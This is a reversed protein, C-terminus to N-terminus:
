NELVYRIVQLIALHVPYILYFCRPAKRHSGSQEFMQILLVALASIRYFGPNLCAAFVAWVPYKIRQQKEWLVHMSLALFLGRLKYESCCCLFIGLVPFFGQKFGRLKFGSLVLLIGCLEFCVNLRRLGFLATYPIQSILGLLFVRLTYRNLSSTSRFGKVIGYVFLPFAFRGFSRLIYYVASGQLFAAAFHDCFMCLYAILKWEM